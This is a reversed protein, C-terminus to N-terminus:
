AAKDLTKQVLPLRLKFTAGKGLESACELTGGHAKAVEACLCLGTGTQASYKGNASNVFFRDFITARDAACVGPGDDVVTIDLFPGDASADIVVNSRAHRIANQVIHSVCVAIEEIDCKIVCNKGVLRNELKIGRSEASSRMSEIVLIMASIPDQEATCLEKVGNKYKYIDVLTRVLRDLERNNELLHSLIQRQQPNITGFDGGLLLSVTRENALIPTRLRHSMVALFDERLNLLDTQAKTLAVSQEFDDRLNHLEREKRTMVFWVLIMGGACSVFGRIFHAFRVLPPVMGPALLQEVADMTGFVVFSVLLAITIAWGPTM